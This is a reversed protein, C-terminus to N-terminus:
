QQLLSKTTQYAQKYIKSENIANQNIKINNNSKNLINQFDELSTKYKGNEYETTCYAKM